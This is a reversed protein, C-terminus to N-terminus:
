SIVCGRQADSALTLNGTCSTWTKTTYNFVGTSATSNVTRSMTCTTGDCTYSYKSTSAPPQMGIKNWTQAAASGAACATGGGCSTVSNGTASGTLQMFQDQHRALSGMQANAEAIYASEPAALMKPLIMTALIALIVVVIMIEILTFGKRNKM